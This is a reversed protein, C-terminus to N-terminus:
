IMNVSHSCYKLNDFRPKFSASKLNSKIRSESSFKFLKNIELDDEFFFDFSLDSESFSFGFSSFIWTLTWCAFFSVSWSVIPRGSFESLTPLDHFSQFFLSLLLQLLSQFVDKEWRVTLIDAKTCYIHKYINFTIHHLDFRSKM